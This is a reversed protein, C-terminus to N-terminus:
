LSAISKYIILGIIHLSSLHIIQYIAAVRFHQCLDIAQYTSEIAKETVYCFSLRRLFHCYGVINVRYRASTHFVLTEKLNIKKISPISLKLPIQRPPSM